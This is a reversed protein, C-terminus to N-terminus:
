KSAVWIGPLIAHLTNISNHLMCVQPVECDILFEAFLCSNEHSIGIIVVIKDQLSKPNINLAELRRDSFMLNTFPLNISNEIHWRKYDHQPRLDFVMVGNPKHKLLDV